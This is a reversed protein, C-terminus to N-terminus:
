AFNRYLAAGARQLVWPPAFRVFLGLVRRRVGDGTSPASTERPYHYYHLPREESAWLLKFRRLGDADADCRGLDLQRYGREIGLEIARRLLLNNPRLDLADPDSANFKYVLTDKFGLLVDAAIPRGEHEAILVSGGGNAIHERHINEIFSWPQPILGHRKKRTLSHLEYFAHMDELSTSDRVTVGARESKRIARRASQHWRAELEALTADLPIIHQYFEAGRRFGEAELDIAADGRLEVAGAGNEALRRAEDLLAAGAGKHLLPPSLDSFPLGVLRGGNVEFLPIGADIHGNTRAVLYRPRFRYTGSLVRAWASSHFVNAESAREVFADWAPERTPDITEIAM